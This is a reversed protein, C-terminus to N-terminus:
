IRSATVLSCKAKDANVNVFGVLMGAFRKRSKMNVTDCDDAQPRDFPQRGPPHLRLCDRHGQGRLRQQQAAHVYGAGELGARGAALVAFFDEPWRDAVERSRDAPPMPSTAVAPRRSRQAATWSSRRPRTSDSPHTRRVPHSRRRRRLREADSAQPLMMWVACGAIAIRRCCSLGRRRVEVSWGAISMAVGEGPAVGVAAGGM